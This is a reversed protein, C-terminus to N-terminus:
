INLLTMQKEEQSQNDEGLIYERIFRNAYDKSIISRQVQCNKSGFLGNHTIRKKYNIPEFILNCKPEIGIFWYSTPKKMYDGTAHRNTDIIKPKIAWYNMLYHQSSYPNEIILPIGKRQM